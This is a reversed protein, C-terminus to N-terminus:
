RRHTVLPWSLQSSIYIISSYNREGGSRSRFFRIIELAKRVLKDSEDMCAAWREKTFVEGRIVKNVNVRQLKSYFQCPPSAWIVDFDGPKYIKYDWELIDCLHTPKYKGRYDCIDVSVVKNGMDELARGVSHTGSFLELARM